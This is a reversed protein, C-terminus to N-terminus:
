RRRRKDSTIKKEIEKQEDNYETTDEPRKSREAQRVYPLQVLRHKLWSAEEKSRVNYKKCFDCLGTGTVQDVRSSPLIAGCFMCPGCKTNLDIKPKEPFAVCGNTTSKTTRGFNRLTKLFSTREEKKTTAETAQQEQKERRLRERFRQVRSKTQEREKDKDTM